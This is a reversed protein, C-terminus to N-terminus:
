ENYALSYGKWKILYEIIFGRSTSPFTHYIIHSPAQKEDIIDYSITDVM